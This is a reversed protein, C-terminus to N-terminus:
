EAQCNSELCLRSMGPATFIAEFLLSLVMSSYVTLHQSGSYQKMGHKAALFVATRNGATLSETPDLMALSPVEPENLM